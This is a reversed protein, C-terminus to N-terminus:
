LNGFLKIYKIIFVHNNPLEFYQYREQLHPKLLNTYYALINPVKLALYTM